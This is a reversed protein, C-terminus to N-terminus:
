AVTHRPGPLIPTAQEYGSDAVRVQDAIITGGAYGGWRAQIEPVAPEAVDVGPPGPMAEIVLILAVGLTVRSSNIALTLWALTQPKGDTM